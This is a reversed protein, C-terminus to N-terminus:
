AYTNSSVGLKGNRHALTIAAALLAKQMPTQWPTVIIPRITRPDGQIIVIQNAM